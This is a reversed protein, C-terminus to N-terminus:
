ESVETRQRALRLKRKEDEYAKEKINYGLWLLGDSLHVNEVIVSGQPVAIYTDTLNWIGEVGNEALIDAVARAATRPVCLVAIDVHNEALYSELDDMSKIEVGNLVTGVIEPNTDFGCLLSFGYNSFDFNCLLARGINGCGLLIAKYGYRMGLIRSIEKRITPIYYGYGKRGFEGFHGLDYRIQPPSIGLIQSLELSSICKKGSAALESLHHLYRPLRRITNESIKRKNM